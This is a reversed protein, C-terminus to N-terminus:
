KKNSHNENQGRIVGSSRTSQFTMAPGRFLGALKISARTTM